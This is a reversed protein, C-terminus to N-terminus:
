SDARLDKGLWSTGTKETEHDLSRKLVSSGRERGGGTWTYELEIKIKWDASPEDMKEDVIVKSREGTPEQLSRMM